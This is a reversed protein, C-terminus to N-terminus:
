EYYISVYLIINLLPLLFLCIVIPLFIISQLDMSPISPSSNPKSLSIDTQSPVAFNNLLNPIHALIIRALLRLNHFTPATHGPMGPRPCWIAPLPTQCSPGQCIDRKSIIVSLASHSGPQWPGVRFAGWIESFTIVM